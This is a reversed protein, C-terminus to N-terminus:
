FSGQYFDIIKLRFIYDYKARAADLQATDLNIKITTLDLLKITGHEYKKKGNVYAAEAAELASLSALLEKHSSRANAIANQIDSKLQQRTLKGQLKANIIGLKAREVNVKTLHNNYIPINIQVGYAQGFNQQVQRFYSENDLNSLSSFRTDLGGFLVIKPLAEAQAISIDLSASKLRAEAAKLSAQTKLALQFLAQSSMIQEDTNPVAFDKPVALSVPQDLPLHLLSKLALLSRQELNQMSILAHEDRALQSVIDLRDAQPILGARIQRDIQVLQEETQEMAKQAIIVQEKLSLADLYAAAIQLYVDQLQAEASQKAQLVDYRSKAIANRIKGGNYVTLFSNLSISNFALRTNVFDNTAPDVNRGYQFGMGSNAVLSPLRALKRQKRLLEAESIDIAALQMNINNQKAYQLCNELSWIKQALSTSTSSLLLFAVVVATSVAQYLGRWFPSSLCSSITIYM